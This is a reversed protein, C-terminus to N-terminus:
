RFFSTTSQRGLGGGHNPSVLSEVYSGEFTFAGLIGAVVLDRLTQKGPDYMVLKERCRGGNTDFLCKDQALWCLFGLSRTGTPLNITFSTWSERNVLTSRWLGFRLKTGVEM